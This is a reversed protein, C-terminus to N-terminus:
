AVDGEKKDENKKSKMNPLFVIGLIGGVMGAFLICIIRVFWVNLPFKALFDFLDNSLSIAVYLIVIYTMSKKVKETRM